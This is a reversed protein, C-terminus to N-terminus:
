GVLLRQVHQVFLNWITFVSIQFELMNQWLAFMGFSSRLSSGCRHCRSGARYDVHHRGFYSARLGSVKKTQSSLVFVGSRPPKSFLSPSTESAELIAKPPPKPRPLAQLDIKSWNQVRNQSLNQPRFRAWIPGSTSNLSTYAELISESVIQFRKSM